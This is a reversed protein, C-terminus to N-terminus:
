SFVLPTPADAVPVTALLTKMWMQQLKHDSAWAMYQNCLATDRCFLVSLSVKQEPLLWDEKALDSLVKQCSIPSDLNMAKALAQPLAAMTAEIGQIAHAAASM